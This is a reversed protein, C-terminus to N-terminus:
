LRQARLLGHHHHDPSLRPSHRTHRSPEGTQRLAQACRLNPARESLSTTYFNLLANIDLRVGDGVGEDVGISRRVRTPADASHPAMRTTPPTRPAIKAPVGPSHPATIPVTIPRTNMASVAVLMRNALRKAPPADNAPTNKPTTSPPHSTFNMTKRMMAFRSRSAEHSLWRVSKTHMMPETSAESTTSTRTTILDRM